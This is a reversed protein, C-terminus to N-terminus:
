KKTTEPDVFAANQALGGLAVMNRITDRDKLDAHDALEIPDYAVGGIELKIFMNRLAWQAVAIKNKAGDQPLGMLGAQITTTIPNLTAKVSGEELVIEEGKLLKM